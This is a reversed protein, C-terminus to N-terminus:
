YLAILEGLDLVRGLCFPAMFACLTALRNGHGRRGLFSHLGTIKECEGVELILGCLLGM